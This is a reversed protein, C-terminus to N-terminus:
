GGWLIGTVNASYGTLYPVARVASIRGFLSPNGASFTIAGLLNYTTSIATTVRWQPFELLSDAAATPMTPTGSQRDGQSTSQSPFSAANNIAARFLTGVVGTGNGATAIASIDWTGPGITVSAITTVVTTLPQPAGSFSQFGRVTEGIFGTSAESNDFKVTIGLLGDNRVYNIIPTGSVPLGDTGNSLRSYLPTFAVPLAGLLSKSFPVEAGHTCAITVIAANMNDRISLGSSLMQQIQYLARVAPDALFKAIDEKSSFDAKPDILPWTPKVLAV